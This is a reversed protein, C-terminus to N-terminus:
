FHLEFGLRMNFGPSKFTYPGNDLDYYAQFADHLEESDLFLDPQDGNNADTPRFYRRETGRLMLCDPVGRAGNPGYAYNACNSLDIGQLLQTAGNRTVSRTLVLAGADNLLTQEINVLTEDQFQQNRVDGTEAFIANLNQWNFLNRFDAFATVDRSAGLRFARTVRLDVNKIWPMRSANLPEAAFGALGFNNGPGTQGNGDNRMRTYPLGSALRVTAFFGADQLITGYWRGSNWGHPFTLTGSGAITHTRDDRTPLLAQPPPTRDQTVSSIQRSTTNLYELPDSGTSRASQFTYALSGAFLSGIRSDLKVDIGKANGFDENTLVNFNQTRGVSVDYFGVVRYAVNSTQDKNYASVDLVLDNSFAHRVGFEFLISRGYNAPHGFTANTNTFGIDANSRQAMRNFDPIQVQHSYSLRFGTKDTVPFSVRLSPSMRTRTPAAVMNCTSLATSDAYTGSGGTVASYLTGCRQGMATDAATFAVSLDGTRLPDNFTRAFARSYMLDPNFRDYRMGLEIVVDGLDLRDQAFLGMRNPSAQYGDLNFTENLDGTWNDANAKLWDGGFRVRNYRDFQWDLNVRATLRSESAINPIWNDSDYGSSPFLTPSVGYPNTRYTASSALDQRGIFPVCAGVVGASSTRTGQCVAGGLRIMTILREDIPFNDRNVLFEMSSPTLNMFGPSLHSEYWTPDISGATFADKQYSANAELFLARESSSSLNQTWNLIVAQSNQRFGRRGAPNYLLYSNYGMGQDRSTLFTLSARSGTGFTYQLKANGTFADSFANPLRSGQSYQTFAPIAVQVSDSLADGPSIPATVYGNPAEATNTTDLGNQIWVPVDEAGMGRRANQQGSMTTSLFFTLNRMLPGGFSAEMRHLGQGYVEGSLEDTSYSLTGRFASTGARTVLSVVGSQADGFEVGISGTTVSAEEVANTGVSVTGVTVEARGFTRGSLNRVQVGDVYVAAEGPRGGRIVLGRNGEVVGPQLRLVQSINDAPLADILDGETISKSTVQDRPVLPNQEVTVTIGGVEIARQELALNVTRTQGAEVRVNRTEAPAYGIFQARVVVFGVPVNNIFYYGQENTTSSFSSAVILVQAGAIPAGSQDRITGELKGTTGQAFLRSAGLLLVAAVAAVRALRAMGWRSPQTM